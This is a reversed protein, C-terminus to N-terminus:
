LVPQRATFAVAKPTSAEALASATYVLLYSFSGLATRLNAHGVAFALPMFAM